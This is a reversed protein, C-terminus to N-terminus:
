SNANLIVAWSQAVKRLPVLTEYTTRGLETVSYGETTRYVFHAVQLEKLRQNLVTPSITECKKQLHRFTSPGEEALVWLVGMAWRRGMIDFLAM